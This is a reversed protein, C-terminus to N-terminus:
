YQLEELSVEAVESFDMAQFNWSAFFQGTEGSRGKLINIRRRVITEVSDEQFLGLVVSSHQGIADSYGIDDLDPDEDKKKKDKRKFQWSAVTPAVKALEKKLLDTNEAVRKYRDREYPHELLYAGDVVVLAPKLQMAYGVIDRVTGSLNADIVHFPVPHDKVDKLLTKIQGKHDVPYTTMQGTKFMRYPKHTYLAAVREHILEASMEMSVFLVPKLQKGWVNLAIWLLMWSKGLAPRGVFSVLDGRRLGVVMQDLTPWGFQVGFDDGLKVKQLLLPWVIDYADRFDTLLNSQRKTAMDLLDTLVQDAAKDAAGDEGSKLIEAAAQISKKITGHSFRNFLEDLYFAPTEAASLVAQGFKEEFTEPAPPKGYKRCFQRVFEYAEKEADNFLHELNGSLTLTSADQSQMVAYLYRYGITNV